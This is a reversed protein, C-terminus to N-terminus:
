RIDVYMKCYVDSNYLVGNKAIRRRTRSHCVELSLSNAQCDVIGLGERRAQNSVQFDLQHVPSGHM